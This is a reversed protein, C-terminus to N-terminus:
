LNIKSGSNKFALAKKVAEHLTELRFPKEIYDFLGNRWGERYHTLNANGSIWIVPVDIRAESLYKVLNLGDMEPMLYDSIILDFTENLILNLAEKGDKACAVLYNQSLFFETLVSRIDDEDDVILVKTM